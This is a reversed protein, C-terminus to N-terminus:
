IERRGWRPESKEVHGVLQVTMHTIHLLPSVEPSEGKTRYQGCGIGDIMFTQLM